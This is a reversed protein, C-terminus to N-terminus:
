LWIIYFKGIDVWYAKLTGEVIFSNISYPNYLHVGNGLKYGGYWQEVEKIQSEKNKDKLIACVEDETFGFKDMYVEKHM